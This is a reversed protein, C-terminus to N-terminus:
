RSPSTKIQPTVSKSNYEFKRPVVDALTRGYDQGSDVSGNRAAM